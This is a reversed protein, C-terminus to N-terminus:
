LDALVDDDDGDDAIEARRRVIDSLLKSLAISQQRRQVVVNSVVVEVTKAGIKVQLWTDRDGRLLANLHDLHDATVAAQEILRQGPTPKAVVLQKVAAPARKRPTMYARFGNHQLAIRTNRM